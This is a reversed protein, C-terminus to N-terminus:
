YKLCREHDVQPLPADMSAETAPEGSEGSGETPGGEGEAAGAGSGKKGKGGWGGVRRWTGGIKRFSGQGGSKGGGSANASGGGAGAGSSNSVSAPLLAEVAGEVWTAQKKTLTASSPCFSHLADYVLFLYKRLPKVPHRRRNM